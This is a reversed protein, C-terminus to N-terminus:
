TGARPTHPPAKAATAAAHAEAADIADEIRERILLRGERELVGANALVRRPQPRLGSLIALTKHHRLAELASELAVLGSADMAPVRDMQLIMVRARGAIQGLTSTAKEAAGFFLPGQIDYVFVGPPLTRPLSPHEGEMLEVDAVEAMRRMFLLAALVVGVSVATVMDILVTLGYCIVLV